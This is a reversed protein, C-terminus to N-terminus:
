KAYFFSKDKFESGSNIQSSYYTYNECKINLKNLLLIIFLYM